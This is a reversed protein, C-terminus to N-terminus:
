TITLSNMVKAHSEQGLVHGHGSWTLTWLCGWNLRHYFSVQTSQGGALSMGGSSQAGGTGTFNKFFVQWSPDVSYPDAEWQRQMEELFNGSTGHIFNDKLRSLPVAQTSQSYSVNRGHFSRLTGVSLGQFFRHQKPFVDFGRPFLRFDRPAFPAHTAANCSVSSGCFERLGTAGRALHRMRYPVLSCPALLLHRLKERVLIQAGDLGHNRCSLLLKDGISKRVGAQRALSSFFKCAM